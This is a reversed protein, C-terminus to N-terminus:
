NRGMAVAHRHLVPARASAWAHRRTNPDWAPTGEEAESQGLGGGAIVVAAEWKIDSVREEAFDSRQVKSLSFYLKSLWAMYFGFYTEM